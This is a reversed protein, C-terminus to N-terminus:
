SLSVPNIRTGAEATRGATTHELCQIANCWPAQLPPSCALCSLLGLKWTGSTKRISTLALITTFASLTRTFAM